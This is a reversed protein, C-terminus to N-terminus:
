KLFSQFPLRNHNLIEILIRVDLTVTSMTNRETEEYFVTNLNQELLTHIWEVM